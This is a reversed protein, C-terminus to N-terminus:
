VWILTMVSYGCAQEKADEIDMEQLLSPYYRGYAITTPYLSGLTPRYGSLARQYFGSALDIPTSFSASPHPLLVNTLTDPPEM